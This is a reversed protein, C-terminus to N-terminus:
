SNENDIQKCDNVDVNCNQTNRVTVNPSTSMVEEQCLHLASYDLYGTKAEDILDFKTVVLHMISPSLLSLRFCCLVLFEAKVLQVNELSEPCRNVSDAERQGFLKKLFSLELNTVSTDAVKILDEKNPGLKFLLGVIAVFAVAMVPIGTCTFAAAIVFSSSPSDSPIAWMGGGSLSAVAFYLGDIFVWGPITFTAWMQMMFLWVIYLAIPVFRWRQRRVYEVLKNAVVMYYGDVRLNSSVDTVSSRATLMMMSEIDEDFRYSRLENM